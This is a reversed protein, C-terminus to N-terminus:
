TLNSAVATVELIIPHDSVGVQLSTVDKYTAIAKTASVLPDFVSVAHHETGFSVTVPNAAVAIPAHKVEDWIDPEGWLIVDHAGNSKELMLSNGGVPLNSATYNMDHPTFTSATAGTDALLTTLNHIATAAQKPAGTLDFLGLNKDVSTGTPDKYADLLQYLYTRTVGLKSADMLTNLTLKAQTLQDVGNKATAATFYGTETLVIPKGAMATTQSKLGAVLTNYPQAGKNAYAHFNAYDSTTTANAGTLGYIDVGKIASLGKVATNMANQYAVGAAVGTMGGYTIHGNNIENPGEVAVLAGPHAASWQAIATAAEKPDRSGQVIMDIKFGADALKGYAGQGQNKSWVAGDRVNKVGLYNLDAIVNKWNLYKGDTYEVHTNVGISNIFTSARQSSAM